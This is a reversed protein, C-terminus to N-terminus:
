EGPSDEEGHLRRDQEVINIEAEWEEDDVNVGAQNEMGSQDMGAHIVRLRGNAEQIVTGNDLMEDVLRAARPYGIRLRRQLFSISTYEQQKIQDIAQVILEQDGGSSSDGGSMGEWPPTGEWPPPDDQQTPLSKERTSSKKEKIPIGGERFLTDEEGAAIPAESELIQLAKLKWFRVLRSLEQNSVFVGQLRVPQPAEASLYLMDGRGLLKEAGPSDLIVRSDVMSSVAFSIRTPFNAKILGTVVDVSPRQTALILHIGTARAMQALRCILRETEDPAVMMLDALEDIIVVINAM